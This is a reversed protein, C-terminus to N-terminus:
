VKIQRIFRIESVPKLVIKQNNPLPKSIKPWGTYTSLKTVGTALKVLFVLSGIGATYIYMAIKMYSHM